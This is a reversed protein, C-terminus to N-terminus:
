FYCLPSIGVTMWGVMSVETKPNNQNPKIKPQQKAQIFVAATKMINLQASGQLLHAAM